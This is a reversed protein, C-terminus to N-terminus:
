GQPRVRTANKPWRSRFRSDPIRPNRVINTYHIEFFDGSGTEFFKQQVPLWTGQDIWLHIKSIHSRTKESKPTLELWVVKKGDLEPEGLLTTLYGKQLDSGPTGFGLLLFQDVLARHKGLDYEEVRNIGPTYIFLHDGNRLVTRPSPATLEILMKNDRRVHIEGSETSRDNVVVTVKTRELRATLSRFQQAEADLQRLVANLTWGDKKQAFVHGAVPLAGALLAVFVMLYRILEGSRGCFCVARPM